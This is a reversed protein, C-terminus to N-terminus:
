ELSSYNLIDVFEIVTVPEAIEICEVPSDRGLDSILRCVRRYPLAEIRVLRCVVALVTSVRWAIRSQDCTFFFVLFMESETRSLAVLRSTKISEHLICAPVLKIVFIGSRECITDSTDLSVEIALERIYLPSM